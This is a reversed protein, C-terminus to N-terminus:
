HPLIDLVLVRPCPGPSQTRPDKWLARSAGTYTTRRYKGQLNHSALGNGQNGGLKQIGPLAMQITHCVDQIHIAELQNDTSALVTVDLSPFEGTVGNTHTRSFTLWAVHGMMARDGNSGLSAYVKYGTPHPKLGCCSDRSLYYWLIELQGNLLRDMWWSDMWESVWGGLIIQRQINKHIMYRLLCM